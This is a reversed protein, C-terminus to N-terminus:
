APSRVAPVPATGVRGVWWFTFLSLGAALWGNLGYGSIHGAADTRLWLGGLLAGLGTGIQQVAANASLFAGRRQPDSVTTMLAQLPVNRGNMAVMFFPFMCVLAMLPLRPLHTIVLIPVVSFLVFVRFVKQRGARDSWTGVYRSSFFAAIGGAMYIWMIDGPQVGLNGVLVPSIFPIVLMGNLMTVFTLLFARLHDPVRFLAVLEPLARALPVKRGMHATLPPLVFAAALWIAMSFVVLLYFPSQWGFRAALGVGLPVGLIAAMSFSTMVIGTAYGRRQPAVLDGIIAMGIAGLVGGTLGAFARSLVLVHFNPAMACALNSLNFLLFVTLLMRKRDFRDIYTAALLGSLGACWAYASVAGSFQAPSISFAQMLQPSLPMMVMFDMIVTFQTLALLWLVLRERAPNLSTTM